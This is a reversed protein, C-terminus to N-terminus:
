NLDVHLIRTMDRVGLTDKEVPTTQNLYMFLLCSRPGEKARGTIALLFNTVPLM